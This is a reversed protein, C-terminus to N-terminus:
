MGVLTTPQACTTSGIIESARRAIDATDVAHGDMVMIIKTGDAEFIMPNFEQAIAELTGGIGTTPTSGATLVFTTVQATEYKTADAHGVGNTRTFSAM